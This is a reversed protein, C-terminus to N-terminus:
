SDPRKLHPGLSLIEKKKKKIKLSFNFFHVSVNVKKKFLPNATIRIVVHSERTIQHKRSILFLICDGTAYQSNNLIDAHGHSHIGHHVDDM